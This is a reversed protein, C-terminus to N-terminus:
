FYNFEANFVILRLARDELLIQGIKEPFFHKFVSDRIALYLSRESLQKRFVKEYLVSQGFANKLYEM